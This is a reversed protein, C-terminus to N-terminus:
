AGPPFAALREYRAGTTSLFSQMLSVESVTMSPLPLRQFGELLAALRSREEMGTEDPVRALTLHAAFPRREREFGLPALAKEVRAALSALQETDGELGVWVVRLLRGGFSGVRGLRLSLAFPESIAGALAGRVREAMAPSVGGLFKLTLHIGEPRVWRLRGAGQARLEGQLQALEEKVAPPLECAVFLRMGAEKARDKM